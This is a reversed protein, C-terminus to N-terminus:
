VERLVLDNVSGDVFLDPMAAVIRKFYDPDALIQLQTKELAALDAYEATWHISSIDGFSQMYVQVKEVGYKKQVHAAMEKAWSIAEMMRGGKVRITRVFRVM